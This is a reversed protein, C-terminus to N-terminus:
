ETLLKLFDHMVVHALEANIRNGQVCDGLPCVPTPDGHLCRAAHVARPLLHWALNKRRSALASV